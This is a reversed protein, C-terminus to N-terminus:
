MTIIFDIALHTIILHFILLTCDLCYFIGIILASISSIISLLSLHSVLHTTILYLLLSTYNLCYFINIILTLSLLFLLHFLSAFVFNLFCFFFFLPSMLYLSLTLFSKTSCKLQTKKM